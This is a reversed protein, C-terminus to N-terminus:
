PVNPDNDDPDELVTWGDGDQDVIDGNDNVYLQFNIPLFTNIVQADYEAEPATTISVTAYTNNAVYTTIVWVQAIRGDFRLLRANFERPISGFVEQKFETCLIEPTGDFGYFNLMTNIENAIVSQSPIAQNFITSSPVWRFLVQNDDRFVNVGLTQTQPDTVEFATFGQPIIFGLLPIQSHIFQQGPNNLVPVQSLGTPKANAFDWYLGTYGLVNECSSVRNDINQNQSNDDDKSCSFIFFLILLVNFYKLLKM